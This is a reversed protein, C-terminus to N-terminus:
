LVCTLYLCVSLSLSSFASHYLLCISPYLLFLLSTPISHFALWSPPIAVIPSINSADYLDWIVIQDDPNQKNKCDELKVSTQELGM